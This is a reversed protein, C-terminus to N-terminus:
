PFECAMYSWVYLPLPSMGAKVGSLTPVRSLLGLPTCPQTSRTPQNCVLITYGGSWLTVCGNYVIFRSKQRTRWVGESVAISPCGIWLSGKISSSPLCLWGTTFMNSVAPRSHQRCMKSTSIPVSGHQNRDMLAPNTSLDIRVRNVCSWLLRSLNQSRMPCSNILRM